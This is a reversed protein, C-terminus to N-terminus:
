PAAGRVEGSSVEGSSTEVRTWAERFWAGAMAEIAAGNAESDETAAMM